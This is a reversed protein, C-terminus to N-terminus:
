QAVQQQAVVDIEHAVRSRARESLYVRRYKSASSVSVGARKAIQSVSATPDM